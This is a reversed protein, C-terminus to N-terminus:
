CCCCALLIKASVRPLKPQAMAGANYHRSYGASRFTKKANDADVLVCDAPENESTIYGWNAGDLNLREKLIQCAATTDEEGQPSSGILYMNVSGDDRLTARSARGRRISESFGIAEGKREHLSLLHASVEVSAKINVIFSRKMSGCSPCPVRDKISTGVPEDLAAGCEGCKVSKVISKTM